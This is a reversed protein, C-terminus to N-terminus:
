NIILDWCRVQWEGFHGGQNARQDALKGSEGIPVIKPSQQQQTRKCRRAHRCTCTGTREYNDSGLPKSVFTASHVVEETGNHSSIVVNVEPKQPSANEM